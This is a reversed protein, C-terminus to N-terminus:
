NIVKWPSPDGQVLRRSSILKGSQVSLDNDPTQVTIYTSDYLQSVGYIKLPGNDAFYKNFFYSGDTFCMTAGASVFQEGRTGDSLFFSTRDCHNHYMFVALVTGNAEKAPSVRRQATVGAALLTSVTTLLTSPRM